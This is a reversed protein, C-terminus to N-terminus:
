PGEKITIDDINWGSYNLLGDSKLEFRIRVASKNDAWASIDITEKIWSNDTTEGSTSNRFIRVWGEGNNIHVHAKDWAWKEINLWRYFILHINTYGSCNVTPSLLYNTSFPDYDGNASLDNGYCNAGSHASTPDPHGRYIGGKGQPPGVEWDDAGWWGTKYHSWVGTYNGMIGGDFDDFFIFPPPGITFSYPTSPLSTFNGDVSVADFYAVNTAADEAKFYYQIMGESLSDPITVYSADIVANFEGDKNTENWSLFTMVMNYWSSWTWGGFGDNIKNQYYLHVQNQPLAVNDKVRVRVTISTNRIQDDQPPEHDNHWFVPPETDPTSIIWTYAAEMNFGDTDKATNNITITYIENNQLINAQNDNFTITKNLSSWVNNQSLVLSTIDGSESGVISFGDKISQVDMEKSFSVTIKSNLEVDIKGNPPYVSTIIPHTTIRFYWKAEDASNPHEWVGNLVSLIGDGNIDVNYTTEFVNDASDDKDGDSPGTGSDDTFDMGNDKLNLTIEYVYDLNLNSLPTWSVQNVSYTHSVPNGDLTLIITSPDIGSAGETACSCSDSVHPHDEVNSSITPKLNTTLVPLLPDTSIQGTATNVPLSPYIVPKVNDPATSGTLTFNTSATTTNKALDSITMNITYNGDLLDMVPTYNIKLEYETLSPDTAQTIKNVNALEEGSLQTGNITIILSDSDLLSPKPASPGSFSPNGEDKFIVSILPTRNSLSSGTLPILNRYTPNYTDILIGKKELGWLGVAQGPASRGKVTVVANGEVTDGPNHIPNGDDVVTFTGAWENPTGTPAFSGPLYINGSNTGDPFLVTVDLPNGSAAAPDLSESALVTITVNGENTIEPNATIKFQPLNTHGGESVLTELAIDDIRKPQKKDSIVVRLRMINTENSTELLETQDGDNDKDAWDQDVFDVSIQRNFNTGPIQNIKGDNVSGDITQLKEFDLAKYEEMTKRALVQAQNKIKNKQTVRMTNVYLTELSLLLTILVAMSILLEILSFGTKKM